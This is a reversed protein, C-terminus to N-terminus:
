RHPAPGARRAAPHLGLPRGRRPHVLLERPRIGVAPEVGLGYRDPEEERVIVSHERALDTPSTWRQGESGVSQREDQCIPCAEPPQPTDPYQVACTQCIRATM